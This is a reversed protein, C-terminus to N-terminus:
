EPDVASDAYPCATFELHIGSKQDSLLFHVPGLPTYRWLHQLSSASSVTSPMQCIAPAPSRDQSSFKDMIVASIYKVQKHDKMSLMNSDHLLSLMLERVCM